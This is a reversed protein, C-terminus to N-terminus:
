LAFSFQYLDTLWFFATGTNSKQTLSLKVLDIRAINNGGIAGATFCEFEYTRRFLLTNPFQLGQDAGIELLRSPTIGLVVVTISGLFGQRQCCAM